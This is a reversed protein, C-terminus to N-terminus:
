NETRSRPTQPEAKPEPASKARYTGKITAMVFNVRELHLAPRRFTAREIAQRVEPSVMELGFLQKSTSAIADPLQSPFSSVLKNTGWFLSHETWPVIQYGTPARRSKRPHHMDFFLIDWKTGDFNVTEYADWVLDDLYGGSGLRHFMIRADPS